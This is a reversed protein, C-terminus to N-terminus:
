RSPLPPMEISGLDGSPPGGANPDLFDFDPDSREDGFEPRETIAVDKERRLIAALVRDQEAKFDVALHKDRWLRHLIGVVQGYSMDLGPKPEDASARHGLFVIFEDLKPGVLQILGQPADAARYYVELNPNDAQGRIMFRGSWAEALIPRPIELGTGFVAIRPEGTQTVYIMPIRSPIIDLMFRGNVDYHRMLPDNRTILAEYAALRVDVADDDLMERLALDIRPNFGADELLRIARLRTDLSASNAMEILPPVVLADNLRAGARLAAMRPLEESFDYLDQIVPIVRKGLAEWRWSADQASGPNALLLRKTSMATAEAGAQYISTHMLLEVFEQPRDRYSPPVTIKITEDSEGHATEDLQKPERPFVTNVADMLVRVRNYSPTSLQLKMPINRVVRGGNLVRGGTRSVTDLNVADPDAFPNILVPGGAEAVHFAQRSGTPPLGPGTVPRLETTYLTGGELSTTGTRPDAY